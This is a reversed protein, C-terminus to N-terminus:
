REDRHAVSREPEDLACCFVLVKLCVNYHGDQGDM